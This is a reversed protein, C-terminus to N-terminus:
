PRQKWTELLRRLLKEVEGPSSLAYQARSLKSRGVRISLGESEFANFADEDTEDDGIYVPIAAAEDALARQRSLLWQVVTGKNWRVSPRVEFVRKGVTVRVQHKELYPQLIEYFRNKVSILDAAAVNRFHVSLTFEKDEVWAGPFPRLTSQLAQAIKKLAPRAYRAAPNVYRLKPGELELGHNGVYCLGHIGVMAKLEGLRRGSIVAAWMGRQRAIEELLNKVQTPLLAKSPQDAIPVLTGDYDLFLVLRSAGQIKQQVSPWHSWLPLTM